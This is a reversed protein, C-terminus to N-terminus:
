EAGVLGPVVAITPAAPRVDHVLVKEKGVFYTAFDATVLNYTQETEGPEVKAVAVCGSPTHLMMGAALEKAMLWGRGSVWFPHGRTTLIADSGVTVKLLPCAARVTTLLVPKYALEGTETDQALVRDGINLTEIKKAGASTWVLTGAAFCSMYQPGDGAPQRVAPPELGTPRTVRYPVSPLEPKDSQYIVEYATYYDCYSYERIPKDEPNAVENYEYWWKWWQSPTADIQKGTIMELAARIRENMRELPGNAKKIAKDLAAASAAAGFAVSPDVPLETTVPRDGVFIVLRKEWHQERSVHADERDGARFLSHYFHVRGRHDRTVGYKSELPAVMGALMAPVCHELPRKKLEAAAAQRVEEAPSLVAERVLALSSEYQPMAGLSGIMEVSLEVDRQQRKNREGAAGEFRIATRQPPEALSFVARLSSIADADRMDRLEALARERQGAEASELERRIKALRPKWEKMARDARRMAEKAQDIQAYTLLMGRYERMGLAQLAEANRRDRRIIQTWHARAEDELKARKCWRALELHDRLTGRTADRRRRYEALRSDRELPALAEEAPTWGSDAKVLGAHWRAPAYQPDVAGAADLLEKRRALDGAAEARLAKGTLEAATAVPAAEAVKEAEDAGFVRGGPGFVLALGILIWRTQM